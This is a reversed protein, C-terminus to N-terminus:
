DAFRPVILGCALGLTLCIGGIVWLSTIEQAAGPELVSQAYDSPHHYVKVEKGAPYRELYARAESEISFNTEGFFIRSGTQVTGGAQYRYEVVPRYRAGGKSATRSLTSQIITGGAQPWDASARAKWWYWAGAGLAFLGATTLVGGLIWAVMKRQFPTDPTKM